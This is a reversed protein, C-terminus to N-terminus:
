LLIVAEILGGLFLKLTSSAYGTGPVDTEKTTNVITILFVILWCATKVCQFVLYTLPQLDHRAFLIIETTALIICVICILM